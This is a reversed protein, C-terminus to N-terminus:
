ERPQQTEAIKTGKGRQIHDFEKISKMDDLVKQVITEVRQTWMLVQDNDIEQTNQAM